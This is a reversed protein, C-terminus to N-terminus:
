LLKMKELAKEEVSKMCRQFMTIRDFIKEDEEIQRRLEKGFAMRLTTGLNVKRVGCLVLKRLDTDPIGSSGHLVLPVQVTNHIRELLDFQLEANQLQMRHVTGVAVALADVETRRAFEEAEAPQTYRAHYNSSSDSYGVAGIESEVSAGYSHAMEVVKKTLFVNEDFPLQSADIMVSSYGLELATKITDLNDAHDLHVGVPVTSKEAMQLLLNGLLDIPIHALAPKNTMLIVPRGLSEAAAIVARADEYGFVNFAATGHGQEETIHIINKLTDLM